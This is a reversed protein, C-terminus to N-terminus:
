ASYGCSLPVAPLSFLLAKSESKPPAAPPGLFGPQHPELGEPDCHLSCLSLCDAKTQASLLAHRAGALQSARVWPTIPFAPPKLGLWQKASLFVAQLGSKQSLGAEETPMLNWTTM